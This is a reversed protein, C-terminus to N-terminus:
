LPLGAHRGQAYITTAFRNCEIKAGIMPPLVLHIGAFGSSFAGFVEDEILVDQETKQTIPLFEKVTVTVSRDNYIVGPLFEVTLSSNANSKIVAGGPIIVKEVIIDGSVAIITGIRVLPNGFIDTKDELILYAIVDDNEIITNELSQEMPVDGSKVGEDPIFKVLVLKGISIFLLVLILLVLFKWKINM